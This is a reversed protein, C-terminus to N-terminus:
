GERLPQAARQASRQVLQCDVARATFSRNRLLLQKTVAHLAVHLLFAARGLRAARLEVSIVRSPMRANDLPRYPVLAPIPAKRM